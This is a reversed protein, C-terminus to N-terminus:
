RCLEVLELAWFAHLQALAEALAAPSADQHQLQLAKYSYAAQM